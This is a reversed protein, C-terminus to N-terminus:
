IKINYNAKLQELSYNSNMLEEMFIGNKYLSIIQCNINNSVFNKIDTNYNLKEKEYKKLNDEYKMILRDNILYCMLIQANKIDNKHLSYVIPIKENKDYFKVFLCNDKDTIISQIILDNDIKVFYNNKLFDKLDFLEIKLNEDLVTEDIQFNYNALVYDTIYNIIKQKANMSNNGILIDNLNSEGCRTIDVVYM